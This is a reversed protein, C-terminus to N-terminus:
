TSSSLTRPRIPMECYRSARIGRREEIEVIRPSPSVSLDLGLDRYVCDVILRDRQDSVDGNLLGNCIFAIVLDHEPDAIVLSSNLGKHGFARPSCYSGFYSGDVVAGLGWSVFGRFNECYYGVRHKSLMAETTPRSLWKSHMIAQYATAVSRATAMMS